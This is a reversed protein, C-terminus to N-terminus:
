MKCVNYDVEALARSSTISIVSDIISAVIILLSEIKEGGNRKKQRQGPPMRRHGRRARDHGQKSLHESCQSNHLPRSLLVRM